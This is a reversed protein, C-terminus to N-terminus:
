IMDQATTLNFQVVQVWQGNALSRLFYEILHYYVRPLRLNPPFYFYEHLAFWECM